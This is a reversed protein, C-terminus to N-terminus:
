ILDNGSKEDAPPLKPEMIIQWAAVVNERHETLAFKELESIEIRSPKSDITLRHLASRLGIYAVGLLQCDKAVVRGTKELAELIRINDTYQLLAEHQASWALVAYQVIFEIDVIGGVDYKLDFQTSSKSTPTGHASILKDRMKVIESRCEEETRAKSLIQRRIESFEAALQQNGCIVRARVLAQHEWLWASKQQYTTFAKISSVMLGSTGSPRLRMDVEYLSGSATPTALIHIMRQALRTCFVENEVSRQGNTMGGATMNNLFVLDLDSSYNMELGGLKGYGLIIFDPTVTTSTNQAPEGYKGVVNEWAIEFVAEIIAEAIHTLSDSVKMLPLYGTVESAAVRLVQSRKFYRLVEMQQELDEPETRLLQQQLEQRLNDAELPKFLLERDLLEDLLGPHKALEEAIWPSASCLTVLQKLAAPNEILLVLYATRRVVSNVLLLIRNLSEEPDPEAAIMKLLLPMFKNVRELAIDQLNLIKPSERLEALKNLTADVNSFGNDVLLSELESPEAQAQWIETWILNEKEAGGGEEEEPQSILATFQQNVFERYSNLKKLYQEWTEFGLAFAIRAQDLHSSPLLQTQQDRIAQIAHESNRLFEYARNMEQTVEEPLMRLESLINLVKQLGREQLRIDRGGRILQFVQAIFEIERIGGAGLKLNDTLGRSRTERAILTKMSRISDIVTYDLYRRYVFPRLEDLIEAGANSDGAVIRAKILAYREWERGQSQYYEAMADFNMVLPGSAGYPRLRMDTRFVFGHETTLDLAEILQRGLKTFFEQNSIARKEADTTGATPYAFILDIDSSLNLEHAGLKGMGIVVLNQANSSSDIPQGWRECARPYLWSLAHDICAEALRTVDMTTAAMKCYGGIDRWIIRIMERRRFIRLQKHLDAKEESGDLQPKLRQAYENEAYVSELDGSSLLELFINPHRTCQQSVYESISWVKQLRNQNGSSQKLWNEINELEAASLGEDFTPWSKKFSEELLPPLNLASM